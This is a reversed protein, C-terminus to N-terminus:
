ERDAKLEVTAPAWGDEVAIRQGKASMVFTIFGSVPGKPEQRTILYVYRSLPYSRDYLTGQDPPVFPGDGTRALALPKIGPESKVPLPVWERNIYTSGCYGIADPDGAVAQIIGFMSDFQVTGAALPAGGLVSDQLREYSASNAKGFKVHIPYSKKMGAKPGYLIENWDRIKGTFIDRLQDVTLSEVPNKENVIIAIGDLAVRYQKPNFGRKVASASEAPTLPRTSVCLVSERALKMDFLANLAALSGGSLVKVSANGYMAMFERAEDYMVRWASESGIVTIRGSTLDESGPCSMIFCSAAVLCVLFATMRGLKMPWVTIIAM